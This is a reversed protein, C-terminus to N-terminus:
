PNWWSSQSGNVIHKIEYASGQKLSALYVHPGDYPVYADFILYDGCSSWNPNSESVTDITPIIYEPPYLSYHTLPTIDETQLDLIM